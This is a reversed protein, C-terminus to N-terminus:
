ATDSWNPKKASPPRDKPATGITRNAAPWATCCSYACFQYSIVREVLLSLWTWLPTSVKEIGASGCLFCLARVNLRESSIIPFGTKCVEDPDYAEWFDTSILKDERDCREEPDEPSEKNFDQLSRAQVRVFHYITLFIEGFASFVTMYSLQVYGSVSLHNM